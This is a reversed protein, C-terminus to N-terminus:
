CYHSTNLNSTFPLYHTSLPTSLRPFHPLIGLQNTLHARGLRLASQPASLEKTEGLPSRSYRTVSPRQISIYILSFLPLSLSSCECPLTSYFIPLTLLTFARYHFSNKVPFGFFLFSNIKTPYEYRLILAQITLLFFLLPLIARLTMLFELLGPKEYRLCLTLRICVGHVRIKVM